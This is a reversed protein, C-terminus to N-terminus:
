QTMPQHRQAQHHAFEDPSIAGDKNTDLQDFSPAHALNKMMHGQQAREAIRKNRAEDFENAEIKGDANLDFDAFDPMNRGQNMGSTQGPERPRNRRSLVRAQQGASLEDPSLVGDGNIDFNAFGPAHAPNGSIIGIAARASMRQERTKDFEQQNVYGSGDKDFAAFPIPGTPPVPVEAANGSSVGALLVLLM